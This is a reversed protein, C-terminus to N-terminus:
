EGPPPEGGEGQSVPEGAEPGASVVVTVTAGYDLSDGPEHDVYRIVYGPGIDDSHEEQRMPVFGNGSLLEQLEAFSVGKIEPLARTAAGKSVTVVITDGPKAKEGAFPSQSIINGEDITSSFSRSSIKLQLEYEGDKIKKEWDEYSQNLMNPVEIASQAAVTGDFLQGLDGFSM